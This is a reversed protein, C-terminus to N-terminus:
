VALKAVRRELSGEFERVGHELRKLDGNKLLYLSRQLEVEAQEVREPEEEDLGLLDMDGEIVSKMLFRDHSVLLLAGDFAKLAKGLAEVTYFDLHTTIEDLVLLHPHDWVICALALRVKSSRTLLQENAIHLPGGDLFPVKMRVLQGGSLKAVPTHSAVRGVLQLSGLLARVEGEDMADGVEAMLTSLATKSSDASGAVRLEEVALQSYYGLKLRPHRTVTGKTPKLADTALKILTSKGCGNLGVIGVRSGMHISLNIDRLIPEQKPAFAFSVKDFSM